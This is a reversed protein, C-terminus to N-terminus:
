GVAVQINLNTAVPVFGSGSGLGENRFRVSRDNRESRKRGQVGGQATVEGRGAGTERGGRGANRERQRCGIVGLGARGRPMGSRPLPDWGPGM